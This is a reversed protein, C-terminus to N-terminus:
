AVTSKTQIKALVPESSQDIIEPANMSTKTLSKTTLLDEEPDDPMEVGSAPPVTPTNSPRKTEDKQPVKDAAAAPQVEVSQPKKQSAEDSKLTEQKNAPLPIKTLQVDPSNPQKEQNDPENSAGPLVITVKQRDKSIFESKRAVNRKLYMVSNDIDEAAKSAEPKQQLLNGRSTKLAKSAHADRLAKEESRRLDENSSRFSFLPNRLLAEVSLRKLPDPELLNRVLDKMEESLKPEIASRFRWRKSAQATYILSHNATDFPFDDNIMVFIMVGFSWMDTPKPRYPNGKLIEPAVYALSGCFTESWANEGQEDLIRRAFGFDSLKVNYNQTVLVNELKIDRHAIDMVHLYEIALAIQRIWIRAQSEAVAGNAQVVEYLDGREAYRMFIFYKDYRKFISHIAVIHPHSCTALIELERRLFKNKYEAPTKKTDIIKCALKSYTNDKGFQFEGLYVKAFSGEGLRKLLRYWRNNLTKIEASSFDDSM